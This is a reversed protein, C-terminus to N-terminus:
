VISNMKQLSSKQSYLKLKKYLVKVSMYYYKHSLFFSSVEISVSDWNNITLEAISLLESWDNQAYNIFTCLYTELIKNVRETLNDTQSHYATFLKWEIKLIECVRIWFARIFQSDRDSVIVKSLKHHWYFSQIFLQTVSDATIDSCVKLIVRKRLWDTIVTINICSKSLLLKM